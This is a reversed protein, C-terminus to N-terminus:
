QIDTYGTYRKLKWTLKRSGLRATKGLSQVMRDLEVGTFLVKFSANWAQQKLHAAQFVRDVLFLLGKTRRIAHRSRM